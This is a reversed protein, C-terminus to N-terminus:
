PRVGREQEGQTQQASPARRLVTRGTGQCSSCTTEDLHRGQGGCAPCATLSDFRPDRYTRSLGGRGSTVQWGRNRAYRDDARFIKGGLARVLRLVLDLPTKRANPNTTDDLM